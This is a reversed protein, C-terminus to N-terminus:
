SSFKGFVSSQMLSSPRPSQVDPFYDSYTGYQEAKDLTGGFYRPPMTYLDGSYRLGREVMVGRQLPNTAANGLITQTEGMMGMMLNAAKLTCAEEDGQEDLMDTGAHGPLYPALLTRRDRVAEQRDESDDVVQSPLKAQEERSKQKKLDNFKTLLRQLVWKDLDDTQSRTFSAQGGFRSAIRTRVRTATALVPPSEPDSEFLDKAVISTQEELFEYVEHDFDKTEDEDDDVADDPFGVQKRIRSKRDKTGKLADAKAKDDKQKLASWADLVLQFVANKFALWDGRFIVPTTGGPYKEAIEELVGQQAIGPTPEVGPAQKYIIEAVIPAQERIQDVFEPSLTNGDVDIIQELTKRSM